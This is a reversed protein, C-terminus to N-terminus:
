PSLDRDHYINILCLFSFYIDIIPPPLFWAMWVYTTNLLVLFIAKLWRTIKHGSVDLYHYSQRGDCKMCSQLPCVNLVLATFVNVTATTAQGWAQVTSKLVSTKDPVTFTKRPKSCRCLSVIATSGDILLRAWPHPRLLVHAGLLVSRTPAIYRYAHRVLRFLIM